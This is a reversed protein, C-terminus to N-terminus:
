IQKLDPLILLQLISLTAVTVDGTPPTPALDTMAWQTGSFDNGDNPSV